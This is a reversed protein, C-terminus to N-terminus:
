AIAFPTLADGLYILSPMWTSKPFKDHHQNVLPEMCIAIEQPWAGTAEMLSILRGRWERQYIGRMISYDSCLKTMSAVVRDGVTEKHTRFDVM